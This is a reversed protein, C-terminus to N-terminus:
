VGKLKVFIFPPDKNAIWRSVREERQKKRNIVKAKNEKERSRYENM